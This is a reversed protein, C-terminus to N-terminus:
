LKEKTSVAFYFKDRTQFRSFGQLFATEVDVIKKLCKHCSNTVSPIKPGCTCCYKNKKVKDIPNEEIECERGM